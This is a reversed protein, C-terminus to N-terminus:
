EQPRTKNATIYLVADSVFPAIFDRGTGGTTTEGAIIKSTTPNFWEVHLAGATASLDVTVTSNLGSRQAVWRLAKNESFRSLWRLAMYGHGKVIARSPLYILYESGPNALCYGTSALHSQPFMAALNMRKAYAFTDGMAKRAAERSSDSGLSDMYIPNRGKLFSKWVWLYGEGVHQVHDTDTLVIKSDDAPQNDIVDGDSRPSIWDAPSAYLDSNNGGPWQFTMGVPHQKSKRAEYSKLYNIMHYQWDTSRGHSENSIEWLINDLDNLTDIVKRVYAEQLATVPPLLLTHIEEGQGNGNLDGDIGNINNDRYFPHGSWPNGPRDPKKDISWGQFLMVSVYIGRNGAAVVRERLRDFYAQNFRSLDFKPGGDLAIGPGTRQYPLPDFVIKDTTSPVWAANESVWMRMFNHHHAQLFDLYAPYDFPWAAQQPDTSDQLNCWTHSGTLYIAKGSGDAFYHPNSLRVRLSGKALDLQMVGNTKDDVSTGDTKLYVVLMTTLIIAATGLITIFASLRSKLKDDQDM